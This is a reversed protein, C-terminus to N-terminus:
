NSHKIKDDNNADQLELIIVPQQRKFDVEIDPLSSLQGYKIFHAKLMELDADDPVNFQAKNKTNFQIIM